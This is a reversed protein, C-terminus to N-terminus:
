RRKAGGGKGRPCRGEHIRSQRQVVIVFRKREWVSDLFESLNGGGGGVSRRPNLRYVGVM